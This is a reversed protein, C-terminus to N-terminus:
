PESARTRGPPIERLPVAGPLCHGGAEIAPAPGADPVADQRVELLLRVGVAREIPAQMMDIAGDNAGVLMGCPRLFPSRGGSTDRRPMPVSGPRTPSWSEHGRRLRLCAWPGTASPPVTGRASWTRAM